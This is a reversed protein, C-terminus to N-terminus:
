PKETIAKTIRLMADQAQQPTLVGQDVLPAFGDALANLWHDLSAAERKNQMAALQEQYTAM